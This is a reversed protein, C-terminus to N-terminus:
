KKIAKAAPKATPGGIVQCNSNLPIAQDIPFYVVRGTQICSQATSIQKNTPTTCRLHVEMGTPCVLATLLAAKAVHKAFIKM